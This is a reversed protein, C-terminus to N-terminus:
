AKRGLYLRHTRAISEIQKEPVKAERAFSLWDSVAEVVEGLVNKAKKIGLEKALTLLDSSEFEDRKTRISLQHQQMWKNAPDYSYTVDYAPALSWEGAPNMLFSINKTHDDQNRAVVNFVIRRFLDDTAPQPLRLERVVQFAQEYAYLDPRNYDFHALGCLTQVHLREGGGVRDFRRTMFHARGGEELLRCDSMTVGAQQAMKYYAFEIRGFGKPDGLAENTVGDLKLLWHEFGAPAELQGSCVEGTTPNYAIVAKARAGGASTGVSIIEELAETPQGTLSAHLTAKDTLVQRAVKVLEGVVLPNAGDELTPQSAPEFVLAGMGRHGLYCLREVPALSGADRGQAVLWADILQRGYRDPLCDALVGPLGQFTEYNLGPFRYIRGRRIEKLPMRLPAIDWGRRASAPDFEFDAVQRSENWLVAGVRKGWLYVNAVIM